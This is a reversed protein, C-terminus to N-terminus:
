IKPKLNNRLTRLSAVTLRLISEAESALDRVREPDVTESAVLMELWYLTEDAEEEVIGLKAIMDPRSKARCAARYNAGVSTGCRVIQRGIIDGVLDRRLDRVLRICALGLSFTKRKFEEEDVRGSSDM